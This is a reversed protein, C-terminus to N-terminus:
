LADLGVVFAVVVVAGLVSDFGAVAVLLFGSGGGFFTREVEV